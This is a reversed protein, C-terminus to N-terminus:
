EKSLALHYLYILVRYIAVISLIYLLPDIMVRMRNLEGIEVAISVGLAYIINYIIVTTVLTYRNQKFLLYIAYILSILLAIPILLFSFMGYIGSQSKLKGGLYYLEFLKIYNKLVKTDNKIMHYDWSPKMYQIIGRTIINVYGILHHKILYISDRKMEKSIGIYNYQNFNRYGSYKNADKLIHIKSFKQPLPKLYKRDYKNLSKYDGTLIASGIKGELYLKHLRKDVENKEVSYPTQIFKKLSYDDLLSFIAVKSLSMGLWSSSGFFGFLYYNKLYVAMVLIFPISAFLLIKKYDFKKFFILIAVLGILYIIHFLSRILMLSAIDIFFLLLYISKNSEIYRILLYVSTVLLVTDLWTYHLWHEYLITEPLILYIAALLFSLNKPLKFFIFIEFLMISLAITLGMYITAIVYNYHTPFLKVFIGILFNFLPPQSHLYYLSELLNFRLSEYDMIQWCDWCVYHIKIGVFYLIIRSVIYLFTLSLYIQKKTM